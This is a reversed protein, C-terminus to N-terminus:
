NKLPLAANPKVTAVCCRWFVDRLRELVAQDFSRKGM